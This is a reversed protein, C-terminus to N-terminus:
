QFISKLYPEKIVQKSRKPSGVVKTKTRKFDIKKTVKKWLGEARSFQLFTETLM